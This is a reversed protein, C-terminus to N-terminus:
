SHTTFSGYQTEPGCINPVAVGTVTYTTAAALAPVRYATVPQRQIATNPSPLPNPVSVVTTTTLTPGSASSLSLAATAVGGSVVVINQSDVIDTAGAAPYNLDGLAIAVPCVMGSGAPASAGGGCAALACVAAITWYKRM